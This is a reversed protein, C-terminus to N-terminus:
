QKEKKGQQLREINIQMFDVCFHKSIPQINNKAALVM